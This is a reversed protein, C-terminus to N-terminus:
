WCQRASTGISSYLRTRAKLLDIVYDIYERENSLEYSDDHWCAMLPYKEQQEEIMWSSKIMSIRSSLNKAQKKTIIRVDLIETNHYGSPVAVQNSEDLRSVVPKLVLADEPLLPRVVGWPPIPVINYHECQFFSSPVRNNILSSGPILSPRQMPATIVVRATNRMRSGTLFSDVTLQGCWVPWTFHGAEEDSFELISEQLFDLLALNESLHKMRRCVNAFENESSNIGPVSAVSRIWEAAGRLANGDFDEGTHRDLRGAIQDLREHAIAPIERWAKDRYFNSTSASLAMTMTSLTKGDCFSFLIRHFVESPLEKLFGFTTDSQEESQM